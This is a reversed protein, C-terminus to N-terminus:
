ADFAIDLRDGCTQDGAKVRRLECGACRRASERAGGREARQAMVDGAGVRLIILRGVDREIEQRLEFFGFALSKALVLFRAVLEDAPLCEVREFLIAMGADSSSRWIAKYRSSSARAPFESCEM